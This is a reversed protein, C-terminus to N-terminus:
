YDGDNLIIVPDNLSDFVKIQSPKIEQKLGIDALRESLRKAAEEPSSASIVASTGVPYCGTFTTCVYIMDIVMIPQKIGRTKASLELQKSTATAKLIAM